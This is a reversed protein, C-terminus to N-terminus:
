LAELFRDLFIYAAGVASSEIKRKCPYIYDGRPEFTNLKKLREELRGIYPEICSGVYGGLVINYDFIMRLNNIGIALHDLYEEFLDAYVQNGAEMAAFFRELNGDERSSLVIANCYADLCGKQGCYCTKGNPFIHMHGFEASRANEGTLITNDHIVAGGVSNSLSLYILSGGIDQVRREASAGAKADNCLECPYPIFKAFNQRTIGSSGLVTSYSLMLQDKSIIAPVSIGVGLVKRGPIDQALLAGDMMRGVTQFYTEHNVFPLKARQLSVINGSLDLIVIAVHNRTIDLGVAYHARPNIQVGQAKRGGTSELSGVQFVLDRGILEQLNQTVTPLSMNMAYAIDRKSYVGGKCLFQFVKKRNERRISMSSLNNQM